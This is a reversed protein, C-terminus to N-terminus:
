KPCNQLIKKFEISKHIRKITGDGLQLRSIYFDKPHPRFINDGADQRTLDLLKNALEQTYPFLFIETEPTEEMSYRYYKTDFIDELEKFESVEEVRNVKVLLAHGESELFCERIYIIVFEEM